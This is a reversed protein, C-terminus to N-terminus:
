TTARRKTTLKGVYLSRGGPFLAGGPVQFPGSLTSANGVAQGLGSLREVFRRYDEANKRHATDSTQDTEFEHVVLVAVDAKHRDAFAITGAVATLLQYRLDVVKPQQGERKAFLSRSLQEVRLLGRSRPNEIGREVAASITEAVTEGFPEDAKAEITIGVKRGNAEGLLALDANRPEGGLTDFAIQHEPWGCEPTFGKTADCQELLEALNKPLAVVGSGCWAHALEYASRGVKWHYEAKPRPWDDLGHVHQDDKHRLEM